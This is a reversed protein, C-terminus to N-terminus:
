QHWRTRLRPEYGKSRRYGRASERNRPKLVTVVVGDNSAVIVVLNAVRDALAPCIEGREILQHARVRSISMAVCGRGAFIERDALRLVADLASAEVGRQSMRLVAHGTLAKEMVAKRRNRYYQVRSLGSLDEICDSFHLKLLVAFFRNVIEM